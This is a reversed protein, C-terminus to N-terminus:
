EAVTAASNPSDDSSDHISGEVRKCRQAGYERGGNDTMRDILRMADKNVLIAGTVCLNM